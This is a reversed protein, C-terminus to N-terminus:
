KAGKGECSLCAPGQKTEEYRAGRQISEGCRFCPRQLRRRAEKVNQTKTVTATAVNAVVNVQEQSPAAIEPRDFLDCNNDLCAGSVLVSDCEPCREAGFDRLTRLAEVLCGGGAEPLSGSAPSSTPETAPPTSSPETNPVPPGSAVGAVQLNKGQQELTPAPEPAYSERDASWESSGGSTANTTPAGVSVDPLDGGLIESMPTGEPFEEVKEGDGPATIGKKLWPPRDKTVVTLPQAAGSKARREEEQIQAQTREEAAQAPRADVQKVGAAGDVRPLCLLGRAVYNLSFSDCAAVSKDPEGRVWCVPMVAPIDLYAGSSHVLWFRRVFDTRGHQTDVLQSGVPVLALDAKSLAEKAVRLVEDISAFNYGKEPNIERKVAADVEAQAKVLAAALAPTMGPATMTQIV